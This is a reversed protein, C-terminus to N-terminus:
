ILTHSNASDMIDSHRNDLIQFPGGLHQHHTLWSISISMGIVFPSQLTSVLNWPRRERLYLTALATCLLAIIVLVSIVTLGFAPLQSIILKLCATTAYAEATSRPILQLLWGIAM